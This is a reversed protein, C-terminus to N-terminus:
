APSEDEPDVAGEDGDESETAQTSTEETQKLEDPAADDVAPNKETPLNPIIPEEPTEADIADVGGPNPEGPEIQADPKPGLDSESM